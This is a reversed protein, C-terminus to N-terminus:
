SPEPMAAIVRVLHPAIEAPEALLHFELLAFITFEM